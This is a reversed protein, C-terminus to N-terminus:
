AQGNDGPTVPSQIKCEVEKQLPEKNMGILLIQIIITFDIGLDQTTLGYFNFSIKGNGNKFHNLQRFSLNVNYKKEADKANFCAQAM